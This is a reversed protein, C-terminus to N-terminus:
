FKMVFSGKPRGPKKKAKSKLETLKEIINALPPFGISENTLVGISITMLPFNKLKDERDHSIIFGREVDEKDYYQFIMKDFRKTAYECVADSKNVTTVFIFDDGGIHGVFDDCNGAEKVAKNVVDATFLIVDDGKKFGYLDNYSKFNDIDLYCFAYQGKHSLRNKFEKEIFFNGPLKTLPNYGMDNSRRAFLRELRAKLENIDFPKTIFDDAGLEIGKTREEQNIHYATYLVIPTSQTKSNARLRRCVEFGSMKPMMLDLFILDPIKSEIEKLAEEGSLATAVLYGNMILLVELYKLVASDDDVILISKKEM